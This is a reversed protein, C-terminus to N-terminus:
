YLESIPLVENESLSYVYNIAESITDFYKQIINNQNKRDYYSVIYQTNDDIPEDDEKEDNYYGMQYLYGPEKAEFKIDEKFRKEADKTTENDDKAFMLPTSRKIIEKEEITGTYKNTFDYLKM